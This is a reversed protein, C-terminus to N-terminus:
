LNNKVSKELERITAANTAALSDWKQMSYKDALAKAKQYNKNTDYFEKLSKNYNNALIKNFEKEYGSVYGSREAYKKGYKKEQQANYKEIGGNNMYDAAKNYAKTYMSNHKKNLQNMAKVSYKKYNSSYKKKGKPTLSGDENQYRRVGWKMGQVGYHMLENEM